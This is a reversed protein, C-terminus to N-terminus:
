HTNLAVTSKLSIQYLHKGVSRNAIGLNELFKLFILTEFNECKFFTGNSKCLPTSFANPDKKIFGCRRKIPIFHDTRSIQRVCKNPDFKRIHKRHIQFRPNRHM